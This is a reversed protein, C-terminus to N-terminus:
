FPPPALPDHSSLSRRPFGTLSDRV